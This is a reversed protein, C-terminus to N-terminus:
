RVATQVVVRGAVAPVKRLGYGLMGQSAVMLYLLLATPPQILCAAIEGAVPSFAIV